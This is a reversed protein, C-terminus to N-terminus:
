DSIKRRRLGGFLIDIAKMSPVDRVEEIRRFLGLVVALKIIGAMLFLTLFYSGSIKPLHPGLNGGILSGLTVAFANLAGFFAIFRTRNEQPAADYIFLGVCLNFGAWAFGSYVQVTCLWVVSSNLTWLISVFPIMLAAIHLIKINGARDARKGWWAVVFIAVIAMMSNIIQYEIYSIKLGRLLYASFFPADINQAFNLLVAFIIFRGINTSFLKRAIQPISEKPTNPPMVPHPEFMQSLGYVSILRSCTAGAFIISFALRTNGTFWQLLGAAVFSFILSIISTIRNRMGFYRGRIEPPLLDAMISSWPSSSLAGTITSLSVFAILWWVQNTHFIYPILLMPLWMLAQVFVSSVLLTKRSGLRESIMPTFLATLMNMFNPLSTLFGIQQTTAQMSLAFPTIYAGTLGGSVTGSVADVM